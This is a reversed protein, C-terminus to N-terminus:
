KDGTVPSTFGGPMEDFNTSVAYTLV